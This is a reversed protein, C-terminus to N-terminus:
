RHKSNIHKDLSMNQKFILPCYQCKFSGKPVLGHVSAKHRQLYFANYMVENCIECTVKTHVQKMHYKLKGTTAMKRDCINCSFKPGEEHEMIM